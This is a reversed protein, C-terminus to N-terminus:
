HSVRLSRIRRLSESWGFSILGYVGLGVAAPVACVVMGAAGRPAVPYLPLELAITTAVGAAVALLPIERLFSTINPDIERHVIRLFYLGSAIQGLMTGIPVGIVGFAFALPITFAINIIMGIGLYRSELDPRNIQKGFADMVQGTVVMEQGLLLVAAVVGALHDRSGLWASIAFYASAAGILPYAGILRVWLRQLTDFQRLTATFGSEGFTRAFTVSIPLMANLPLGILQSTFNAGISYFAVDRVPFILGVIIADIENNFSAAVASIQVKLGYRILEGTVKRSLFRCDAFRISSRAGAYSLMLIVGEQVYCAVVLGKLGFGAEVMGAAVAAYGVSSAFTSVNL